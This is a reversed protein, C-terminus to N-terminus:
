VPAKELALQLYKIKAHVELLEMALSKYMRQASEMENVIQIREELIQDLWLRLGDVDNVDVDHSDIWEQLNKM